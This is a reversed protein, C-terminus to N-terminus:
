GGNNSPVTGFFKKIKIFLKQNDPLDKNWKYLAFSANSLFFVYQIASVVFGAYAFYVISAINVIIWVMWNEIKKNDLMLQATASLSALVLDIPSAVGVVVAFGIGVTIAFLSYNLFSKLTDVRSVPLSTSDAGWRFFGYILSLVLVGNFISLAMMGISAFFICWLATSAVGVLYGVRMQLMFLITCAYSTVAAAIEWQNIKVDVGFLTPIFISVATLFLGVFLLAITYVSSRIITQDM